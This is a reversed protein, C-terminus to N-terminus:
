LKLNWYNVFPIYALLLVVIAFGFPSRQRWASYVGLLVFVPLLTGLSLVCQLAVPLGLILNGPNTILAVALWGISHIVAAVCIWRMAANTKVVGILFFVTFLFYFSIAAYGSQYWAIREDSDGLFEIRGNKGEKFHITEPTNEKRFDLPGTQIWRSGYIRLAGDTDSTVRTLDMIIFTKSIDHHPYRVTRYLGKFRASSQRAGVQPSLKEVHPTVPAGLAIQAFREYFDWAVANGGGSVLTFYGLHEDPFAMLVNHFSGSDGTAGVLHRGRDTGTWYGFGHTIRISPDPRLTMEDFSQNWLLTRNKEVMSLLFTLMDDASSVLAAAPASHQYFWRGPAMKSTAAAPLPQEFTSHDMHLPQLIKSQLYQEFRQGTVEEILAGLLGYGYNSYFEVTAPPYVRQPLLRTMVNIMSPQDGTTFGDGVLRDDLGSRHTLLARVTVPQPFTAPVQFHKLYNNVDDDLRLKGQQVLQMIAIATFAKSVSAMRWLSRQDVPGYFKVFAPKGDAVLVCAAATIRGNAVLPTFYQDSARAIDISVEASLRTAFTGAALLSVVVQVFCRM